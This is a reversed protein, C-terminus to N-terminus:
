LNVHISWRKGGLEQGWECGAGGLELYFAFSEAVEGGMERGWAIEM